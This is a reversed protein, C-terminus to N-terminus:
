YEVPYREEAPRPLTRAALEAFREASIGLERALRRPYATPSLARQWRAQAILATVLAEPQGTLEATRRDGRLWALLTSISAAGMVLVMATLILVRLVEVLPPRFYVAVALVGAFLLLLLFIRRVIEGRELQRAVLADVEPCSLLRLADPHLAVVRADFRTAAVQEPTIAVFAKQAWKTAGVQQAVEKARDILPGQDLSALYPSSGSNWILDVLFALLLMAFCLGKVWPGLSIQLAGAMENMGGCLLLCFPALASLATRWGVSWAALAALSVGM